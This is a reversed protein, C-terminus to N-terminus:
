ATTAAWSSFNKKLGDATMKIIGPKFLGDKGTGGTVGWPNFLTFENGDYAILAYAHAKAVNSYVDDNDKTGLTVLQGQQWAATIKGIDDNQGFIGWTVHGNGVPRGTIQALSDELVGSKLSQYSNKGDRGLVGSENMQAYAKEALAVWLENASNNSWGGGWGAFVAAGAKADMSTTPLQNDVTVYDAKGDHYFRVTWTNDGNDIFMNQITAPTRLATEALSAPFYCNGVKGQAVDTYSIGGQFLNGQVPKYSYTILNDEKNTAQALPRDGGLFWKEILKELHSGDSNAALNGLPNQKFNANALDGNVVKNSLVRVHDPMLYGLQSVVTQLDTFETADITVHDQTDRLLAIMETRDIVGDKASLRTKAIVGFDSLNQTYWDGTSIGLDYNITKGEGGTGRYVQVFYTAGGRLSTSIGDTYSYWQDAGALVDQSDVMGNNNFDQILRVDANANMGSLTVHLESPSNLALRYIDSTNADSVTGKLLRTGALSGLDVEAPLLNSVTATSVTLTYDTEVRDIRQLGTQADFRFRSYPTVKIYYDGAGLASMNLAIDHTDFNSNAPIGTPVGTLYDSGSYAIKNGASDLLDVFAHGQVGHLQLNFASTQELRFHTYDVRDTGKGITDSRLNSTTLTKLDYAGAFTDDLAPNNRYKEDYFYRNLLSVGVSRSPAAVLSSASAGVLQNQTTQLNTLGYATSLPSAIGNMSQTQALPDLATANFRDFIQVSMGNREKSFEPHHLHLQTQM